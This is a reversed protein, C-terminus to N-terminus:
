KPLTWAGQFDRYIFNMADELFRKKRIYTQGLRKNWSQRTSRHMRQLQAEHVMRQRATWSELAGHAAVAAVQAQKRDPVVAM